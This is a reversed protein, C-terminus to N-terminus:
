ETSQAMRTGVGHNRAVVGNHCAECM